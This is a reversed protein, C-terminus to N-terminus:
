ATIGKELPERTRNTAQRDESSVLSNRGMDASCDGLRHVNSESEPIGDNYAENM